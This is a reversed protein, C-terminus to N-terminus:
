APRRYANILFVLGIAIMPLSLIQGMTLGWGDGFQWYHGMPNEATIFESNGQRFNEVFSRAAGYGLFFIGIMMGPRKLGQFKLALIWMVVLLLAGELAAEYLQSPHRPVNEGNVLLQPAERAAFEVSPFVMGWSVDTPRGWLEGNVFNAIRGLLLGAPAALAVADGAQLLPIGQNRTYLLTALIVGIFGGHFSMGGQWVQLIELPHAFYYIPNYFLVFGLRGGLVVGVVMWTLMEEPQAPTMPANNGPWLAPRKMLRVIMWWGLMLGGIYALAYWRLALEFGFVNVRFLAPDFEPFPIAAAVLAVIDPTM